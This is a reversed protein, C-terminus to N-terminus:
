SIKEIESKAHQHLISRIYTQYPIGKDGAIAKLSAILDDPMRISTKRMVKAHDESEGLEGSDWKDANANLEAARKELEAKTKGKFKSM